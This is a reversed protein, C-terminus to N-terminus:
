DFDDLNLNDLDSLDMGKILEEDDPIMDDSIIPAKPRKPRSQAAAQVEPEEPSFRRMLAIGAQYVMFGLGATNLGILLIGVINKAAM